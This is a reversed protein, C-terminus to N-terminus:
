IEFNNVVGRNSAATDIKKKKLVYAARPFVFWQFGNQIKRNSKESLFMDSSILYSKNGFFKFSVFTAYGKNIERRM